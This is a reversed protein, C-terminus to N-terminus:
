HPCGGPPITLETVRKTESVTQGMSTVECQYEFYNEVPSLVTLYPSNVPQSAPPFVPARYGPPLGGPANRTWRYRANAAFYPDTVTAMYRTSEYRALSLAAMLSASTNGCDDRFVGYYGAQICPDYAVVGALCISVALTHPYAPVDVVVSATALGFVTHVTAHITYSTVPPTDPAYLMPYAHNATLGATQAPTSADGFDWDITSYSAGCLGTITYPASVGGAAVPIVIAPVPLESALMGGPANELRQVVHKNHDRVQRMQGAQDYDYYTTRGSADVEAVKGVLPNYAASRATAGVPLLLVDDLTIAGSATKLQLTHVTGPAAPAIVPVLLEYRKWGGAAPGIELPTALTWVATASASAQQSIALRSGAVEASAWFSLRFAAPPAVPALATRLLQPMATELAQPAATTGPLLLLCGKGTHAEITGAAAGVTRFAFRADASEISTPYLWHVPAAVEFNSFAAESAAANNLQLVPLTQQYGLHLGTRRRGTRAEISLPALLHNVEEVSSTLQFRNPRQLENSDIFVTDALIGPAAQWAWMQYPRTGLRTPPNVSNLPNPVSVIKFTNLSSGIIRSTRTSPTAGPTIIESVTTVLDNGMHDNRLRTVQAAIMSYNVPVQTPPMLTAMAPAFDSLYKYRTRRYPGTTGRRTTVSALQGNDNHGYYTYDAFSVQSVQDISTEKKEKLVYLFDTRIAYPAYSYVAYPSSWSLYDHCVGVVLQGTRSAAFGYSYETKHVQRYAGGNAATSIAEHEVVLPLGRRFDLNAAPAFPYLDYGARCPQWPARAGAQSPQNIIQVKNRHWFAGPATSHNDNVADADGTMAFTSITRGRGTITETVRGYGVDRTEFPDTNMDDYGVVAATKFDDLKREELTPATSFRSVPAAFAYRPMRLIRGSSRLANTTGLPVTSDYNYTRVEDVGALDTLHDHLTVSRIRAGGATYNRDAISDYFLHPEYDLTFRGGAPLVVQTLTGNLPAAKQTARFDNDNAIPLLDDGGTRNPFRNSPTTPVALAPVPYLRYPAGPVNGAVLAPYVYVSPYTVDDMEGQKYYGWYDRECCGAPPFKWQSSFPSLGHYAFRYGPRTACHDLIDIAVLFHRENKGDLNIIASNKDRWWYSQGNSTSIADHPAQIGQYNFNYTLVANYTGVALQSSLTIQSILQDNGTSDLSNVSIQATPTTIESLQFEEPSYGWSYEISGSAGSGSYRLMYSKQGFAQGDSVSHRYSFLMSEGTQNIVQSVHWATAYLMIDASSGPPQIGILYDYGKRFFKPRSPNSTYPMEKSTCDMKDFRYKLGEPTQVTFCGLGVDFSQSSQYPTFRGNAFTIILPDYPITRITPVGSHIDFVFKGSHGPLNYSFVDPESDVQAPSRLGLFANLALTTDTPVDSTPSQLFINVRSSTGPALWGKRSQVGNTGTTGTTNIDDPMGRVERRIIPVGTLTWNMGMEGGTDNVKMGSATYNLGLQVSVGSM